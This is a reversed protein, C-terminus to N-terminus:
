HKGGQNMIFLLGIFIMFACIVLIYIIKNLNDNIKMLEIALIDLKVSVDGKDAGCLEEGFNTVMLQTAGQEQEFSSRTQKTMGSLRLWEIYEDMWM